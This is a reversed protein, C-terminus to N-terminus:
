FHLVCEPKRIFPNEQIISLPPEVHLRHNMSMTITFQLTHLFECTNAQPTLIQRDNTYRLRIEKDCM